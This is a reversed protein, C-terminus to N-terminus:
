SGGPLPPEPLPKNSDKDEQFFILYSSVAAAATPIIWWHRKIFPKKIEFSLINEDFEPKSFVSYTILYNAGKKFKNKNLYISLPKNFVHTTDFLVTNAAFQKTKTAQIISIYYKDNTNESNLIITEYLKYKDNKSNLTISFNDEQALLTLSIILFNSLLITKKLITSDLM